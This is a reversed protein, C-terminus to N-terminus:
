NLFLRVLSLKGNDENPVVISSANLQIADRIRLSLKNNSTNLLSKRHSQGNSLLIYESVTSENKIEDNFIIRLFSHNNVIFFSSNIGDDDQSFQKKRLISEWKKAGNSGVCSVIIDDFYYDVWRSAAFAGGNDMGSGFYPRRVYQKVNEIFLLCSGDEMFRVDRLQLDYSSLSTKNKKGTWEQVKGEDFRCLVAKENKSLNQVFYGEIKQESPKKYLGAVILDRGEQRMCMKSSFVEDEIEINSDLIKTGGSSLGSIHSVFKIKSKGLNDVDYRLFFEGYNSLLAEDAPGHEVKFFDNARIRYYISDEFRQYLFILPANAQDRYGISVFNKNDSSQININEANVPNISDALVRHLKLNGAADFLSYICKYTKDHRCTYLVGFGQYHTYVDLINWKKGELELDKEITWNPEAGLKQFIVKIAKDRVLILNEDVPVVYYAFDNKMNIEDSVLFKQAVVLNPEAKLFFFILILSRVIM